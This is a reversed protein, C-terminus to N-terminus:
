VHCEGFAKKNLPMRDSKFARNFHISQIQKQFQQSCSVVISDLKRHLFEMLETCIINVTNINVLSTYSVISVTRYSIM